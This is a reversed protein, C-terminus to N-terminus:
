IKEGTTANLCVADGMSAVYYLRNDEITSTGREGVYKFTFERGIETKWKLQFENDFHFIYGVSDIMGAIYIGNQTIAPPAFGEGIGTITHVLDPGEVPWSAM